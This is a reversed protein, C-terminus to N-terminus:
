QRRDGSEPEEEDYELVLAGQYGCKKCRYIWGTYGGAVPYIERSGCKPCRLM